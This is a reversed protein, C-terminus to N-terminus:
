RSKSLTKRTMVELRAVPFITHLARVKINRKRRENGCKGSPCNAVPLVNFNCDLSFWLPLREYSRWLNGLWICSHNIQLGNVLWSWSRVSIIHDTFWRVCINKLFNIQVESLIPYTCWIKHSVVFWRMSSSSRKPKMISYFYCKVAM